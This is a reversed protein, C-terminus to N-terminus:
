GKLRVMAKPGRPDCVFLNPRALLFARWTKEPTSSINLQIARRIETNLLSIEIGKGKGQGQILRRVEQELMGSRQPSDTTAAMGEPTARLVVPAKSTEVPVFQTCTNQFSKAADPKGVGIVTVGLERLEEALYTFDRDSSAIVIRKFGQKLALRMAQVCLLMDASNKGPRTPCLKFGHDDWAKIHDASGYVRFVLVRGLAKTAVLLSAALDAHFNEGDVLLAVPDRQGITEHLM